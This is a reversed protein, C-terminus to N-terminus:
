SGLFCPETPFTDLIRGTEDVGTKDLHEPFLRKWESWEYLKGDWEPDALWAVCDLSSSSRRRRQPKTKIVSASRRQRYPSETDIPHTDLYSDRADRITRSLLRGADGHQLIILAHAGDSLSREGTIYRSVKRRPIGVLEAFEDSNIGHEIM